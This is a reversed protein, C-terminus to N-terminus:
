PRVIEYNYEADLSQWACEYEYDWDSSHADEETKSDAICRAWHNLSNEHDLELELQIEM